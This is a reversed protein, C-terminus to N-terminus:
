STGESTDIWTQLVGRAGERQEDIAAKLIELRSPPRAEMEQAQSNAEIARVVEGTPSLEYGEIQPVAQLEPEPPAPALIPRIVFLGLLLMVVGIALIQLFPMARQVLTVSDMLTAETGEPTSAPFELSRLTVTDGRAADYGMASRVLEALAELEEDSRATWSRVGNEDLTSVGDVLVAVSIRRIQGAPKIRERVVESVDYSTRQRTRSSQAEGGGGTNAADGDPLNSAVTVAGARGGNSSDTEEEVEQEVAVRRNPDLIRETVTESDLDADIMVEVLARGAGV